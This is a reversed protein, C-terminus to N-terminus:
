IFTYDVSCTVGIFDAKGDVFVLIFDADINFALVVSAVRRFNGKVHIEISRGCMNVLKPVVPM